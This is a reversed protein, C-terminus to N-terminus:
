FMSVAHGNVVHQTLEWYRPLLGLDQKLKAGSTEGGAYQGNFRIRNSL